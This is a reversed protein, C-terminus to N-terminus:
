HTASWDANAQGGAVSFCTECDPCTADGFIYTMANAVEPHGDTLAMDHLRRGIGDMDAPNAPRLPTTEVDDESLAYDGGTSFFGREGIVVFLNARCSPCSVEYEENVLGWALDDSWSAVGEFSLMAELLYAYETRDSATRRHQNVLALLTEIEAVHQARVDGAEHPQDSGALIAGALSLASVAQERDDSGAVDALWPLAAFSAAYVSGQHCLASWLDSWREANPESAIRGLLAPIDEASGYAHSLQSWDTM